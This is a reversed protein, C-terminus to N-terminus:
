IADTTWQPKDISYREPCSYIIFIAFFFPLEKFPKNMTVATYGKVIILLLVILCKFGFFCPGVKLVRLQQILVFILWGRLWGQQWCTPKTPQWSLETTTLNLNFFNIFNTKCHSRFNENWKPFTQNHTSTINCFILIIHLDPVMPNELKGKNFLYLLQHPRCPPTPLGIVLLLNRNRLEPLLWRGGSFSWQWSNISSPCTFLPCCHLRLGPM